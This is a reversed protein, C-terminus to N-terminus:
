RFEEPIDSLDFEPPESNTKQRALWAEANTIFSLAPGSVEQGKKKNDDKLWQVFSALDKDAVMQLTQGKYKKGINIVYSGLDSSQQAYNIPTQKKAPPIPSDVIREGEELECAFQTGYGLLALARGIAGTEAKEMFDSFHQKDERKRAMRIIKGDQNKIVALMVCFNESKEEYSTEITWDPKEECFWVVRHPVQLYPKGRLDLLPLETGKPTTFSKM